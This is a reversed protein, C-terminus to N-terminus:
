AYQTTHLIPTFEAAVTEDAVAVIVACRTRTSAKEFVLAINKRDLLEGRTGSLKKEKLDAALDLLGVLEEDSIDGLTLLSRGKMNTTPDM